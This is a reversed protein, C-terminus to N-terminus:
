TSKKCRARGVSKRDGAQLKTMTCCKLRRENLQFHARRERLFPRNPSADLDSGPVAPPAMFHNRQVDCISGCVKRVLYIRVDNTSKFCIRRPTTLRRNKVLRM